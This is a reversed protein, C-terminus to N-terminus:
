IIDKLVNMSEFDEIKRPSVIKNKDIYFRLGNTYFYATMSFTYIYLVSFPITIFLGVSATLMVALINLAIIILISTMSIGLVKGLAKNYSRIGSKLGEFIGKGKVIIACAWGGFLVNRIGLVLMMVLVLAFPAFAAWATYIHFFYIIGVLGAILILDFPLVTFLRVLSYKISKKLDKIYCGMFGLRSWSGMYGYLCEKVPIDALGLLFEGFLMVIAIAVITYPLYLALNSSVINVFNDFIDGLVLLTQDIRFNFLSNEVINHVDAFFGLNSLNVILPYCVAVTIGCVFVICVLYYLLVKWLLNANNFTLKQTDLFMM